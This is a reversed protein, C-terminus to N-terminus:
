KQTKPMPNLFTVAIVGAGQLQLASQKKTTPSFSFTYPSLAWVRRPRLDLALSVVFRFLRPIDVLPDDRLLV